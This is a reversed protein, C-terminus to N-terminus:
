FDDTDGIVEGLEELEVRGNRGSESWGCQCRTLGVHKGCDCVYAGCYNSFSAVGRCNGADCPKTRNIGM